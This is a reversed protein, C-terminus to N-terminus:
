IHTLKKLFILQQNLEKLCHTQSVMWDHVDVDIDDVVVDVVHAAHFSM